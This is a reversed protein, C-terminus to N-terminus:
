LTIHYTPRLQPDLYKKLIKYYFKEQFKWFHKYINSM